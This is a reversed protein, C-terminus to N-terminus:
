SSSMLPSCATDTSLDAPFLQSHHRLSLASRMRHPTLAWAVAGATGPVPNQLAKPQPPDQNGDGQPFPWPDFLLWPCHLQMKGATRLEPWPDTDMGVQGQPQVALRSSRDRATNLCLNTHCETGHSLQHPPTLDYAVGASGLPRKWGLENQATPLPPRPM